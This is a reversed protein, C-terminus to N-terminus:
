SSREVIETELGIEPMVVRANPMIGNYLLNFNYGRIISVRVM